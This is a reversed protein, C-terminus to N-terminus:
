RLKENKDPIPTSWTMSFLPYFHSIEEIKWLTPPHKLPKWVKYIRSECCYLQAKPNFWRRGRPAIKEKKYNTSTNKAWNKIEHNSSNKKSEKWPDPHLPSGWWRGGDKSHSWPELGKSKTSKERKGLFRPKELEDFILLSIKSNPFFEKSINNRKNLHGRHGFKTLNPSSYSSILQQSIQTQTSFVHQETINHELTWYKEDLVKRDKTNLIKRQKWDKTNTNKTRNQKQQEINKTWYNEMNQTWYKEENETKLIQM